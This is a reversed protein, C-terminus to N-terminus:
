LRGLATNFNTILTNLTSREGATLSQGIHFWNYQRTTRNSPAGSISYCMVFVDQNVRGASASTNLSGILVNNRYAAMDAVSTRQFLNFGNSPANSASLGPTFYNQQAFGGFNGFSRINMRTRYTGNEAGMDGTQSASENQDSITYLGYSINDALAAGDNFEDWGTNGWGSVGTSQVYSPNFVVSGNWTINFVGPSKANIATSAAVGGLIPYFVNLKNWIGSSKLGAFLDITAGSINCDLTGGAALVAALYTEANNDPQLAGCGSFGAPQPFGGVIYWVGFNDTAMQNSYYGTPVPITLNSDLYVQQGTSLCAWCTLPACGACNGLDQAYVNFYCVDSCADSQTAGSGVLFVLPPIPSSSPTITPTPTQTSTPTNTPTQTNTPTPTLTPTTSPTISPTPTPSYPPVPQCQNWQNANCVWCDTISDWECNFGGGSPSPTMTPTQTNTPTQTPTNTPTETPSPSVSPITSTPTQTPTPTNTPTETPTQTATITTTPTNTPTETPTNTPTETPTISPTPTNTPTETPTQTPTESPTMSPTATLTPTNTPTETPTQTATISPTPTNTPTETPTNTPTETPTNTPTSSPSQTPTNTPTETPTATNTPTPTASAGPSGSPSPTNTQTPSTTPTNTNTPTISPTTTPTSTMTPTATSTKTPTNTPTESPTNTPTNTPTKTPTTTPTSTPTSSPSATISPTISPTPTNTPTPSTTPQPTAPVNYYIVNNATNATNGTYYENTDDVFIFALSTYLKELAFQPNLNTPSVQEYVGLWYQNENTLHLNVPSSASFILNQPQNKYTTFSFVDYKSAYVSPYTSSINEPIFTHVDMGQSNQLRFLYTPNNLTKFESALVFLNNTANQQIYLM